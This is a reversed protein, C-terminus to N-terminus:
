KGIEIDEVTKNIYPIIPEQRRRDRSNMSKTTILTPPKLSNRTSPVDEKPDKRTHKASSDSKLNEDSHGKFTSFSINLGSDSDSSTHHQSLNDKLTNNRRRKVNLTNELKPRRIIPRQVDANGRLPVKHGELIHLFQLPNAKRSTAEAAKKKDLYRFWSSPPMAEKAKNEKPKKVPTEKVTSANSKSKFTSPRTIPAEPPIIRGQRVWYLVRDYLFNLGTEAM